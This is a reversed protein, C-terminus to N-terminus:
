ADKQRMLLIMKNAQLRAEDRQKSMYRAQHLLAAAKIELTFLSGNPDGRSDRNRCKKEVLLMDKAQDREARCTCLEKLLNTVTFEENALSVNQKRARMEAEKAKKRLSFIGELPTFYARHELKMNRALASGLDTKITKLENRLNAAENQDLEILALLEAGHNKM